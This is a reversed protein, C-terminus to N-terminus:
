GLRGAIGSPIWCVSGLCVSRTWQCALRVCRALCPDMPTAACSGRSFVLAISAVPWFCDERSWGEGHSPRLATSFGCCRHCTTKTRGTQTETSRRFSCTRGREAQDGACPSQYLRRLERMYRDPNYRNRIMARAMEGLAVASDAVVAHAESLIGRFILESEPQARSNRDGRRRVGPHARALRGTTRSFKGRMWPTCSTRGCGFCSDTSPTSGLCLVSLPELGLCHVKSGTRSIATKGGSGLSAFIHEGAGGIGGRRYSALLAGSWWSIALASRIRGRAGASRAGKPLSDAILSQDRRAPLQQRVKAEISEKLPRRRM